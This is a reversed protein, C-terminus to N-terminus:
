RSKRKQDAEAKDILKKEAALKKKARKKHM